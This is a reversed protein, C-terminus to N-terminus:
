QENPAVDGFCNRSTCSAAETGICGLGGAACILKELTNMGEYINYQVCQRVGEYSCENRRPYEDGKSLTLYNSNNKLNFTKDKVGNFYFTLEGKMIDQNEIFFNRVKEEDKSELIDEPIVLNTKLFSSVTLAQKVNNSKKKVNSNETSQIHLTIGDFDYNYFKESVSNQENECNALSIIITLCILIRFLKKM